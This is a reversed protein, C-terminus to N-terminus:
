EDNVLVIARYGGQKSLKGVLEEAEARSKVPGIRVRYVPGVGSKASELYAAYGSSKLKDRLVQANAERSFSGVQVIWNDAAAVAEKVTKKASKKQGSDVAKVPEPGATALTEEIPPMPKIPKVEPPDDLTDNDSLDPKPPIEMRVSLRSDESGRELLMPLFIVGLAVLVTAGILRQKLASDLDERAGKCPTCIIFM